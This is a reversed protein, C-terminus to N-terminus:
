GVRLRLQSLELDDADDTAGLRGAEIEGLLAAVAGCATSDGSRGERSCLGAEGGPGIAVHPGAFFVYRERGGPNPAHALAAGFGTRGALILGGLGSLCFPAGWVEDVRAAWSQSIEDRCSAVCPMTNGRRFGHPELAARVSAVFSGEPLAGAFHEALVREFSM